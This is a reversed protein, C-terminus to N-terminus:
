ALEVTRSDTVKDVDFLDAQWSPINLYEKIWRIIRKKTPKPKNDVPMEFEFSVRVKCYKVIKKSM